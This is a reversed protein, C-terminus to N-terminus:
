GVAATSCGAGQQRINKYPEPTKKHAIICGTYTDVKVWRQTVPNLIQVRNKMM